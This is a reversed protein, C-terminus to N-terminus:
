LMLQMVYNALDNSTCTGDPGCADFILDVMARTIESNEAGPTNALTASASNLNDNFDTVLDVPAGGIEVPCNWQTSDSGTCFDATTAVVYAPPASLIQRYVSSCEPTPLLAVSIELGTYDTTSYGPFTLPSVTNTIIICNGPATAELLACASADVEDPRGNGNLDCTSFTGDGDPDVIGKINSLSILPKVFVNDYFNAEDYFQEGPLVQAYESSSGYLSAMADSTVVGVLTSLYLEARASSDPANNIDILKEIVGNVDYGALGFYAAGKQMHGACPSGLVAPYDGSDLAMAVDYQCAEQSTDDAVPEFANSGCGSVVLTLLGAALVYM